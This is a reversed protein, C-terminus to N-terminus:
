KLMKKKYKDHWTNKGANTGTGMIVGMTTEPHRYAYAMLTGVTDNVLQIQFFLTCSMLVVAINLKVRGGMGFRAAIERGVLVKGRSIM